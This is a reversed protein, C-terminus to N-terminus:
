QSQLYQTPIWQWILDVLVRTGDNSVEKVVFMKQKVWDPIKIENEPNYYVANEGIVKVKDGVKYKCNVINAQISVKNTSTETDTSSSSKLTKGFGNKYLTASISFGQDKSISKKVESVFYIGSLYKGVGEIEVTCGAKLKLNNATPILSIEGTLTNFEIDIYDKEADKKSSTAGGDKSASSQSVTGNLGSSISSTSLNTGSFTNLTWERSIPNYTYSETPKVIYASYNFGWNGTQGNGGYKEYFKQADWSSQIRRRAEEKERYFLEADWPSNIHIAM